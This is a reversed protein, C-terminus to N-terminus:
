ACVVIEQRWQEFCKNYFAVINANGTLARLSTGALSLDYHETYCRHQADRADSLKLQVRLGLPTVGGTEAVRAYFYCLLEDEAKAEQQMKFPISITYCVDRMGLVVGQTNHLSHQTDEAISSDFGRQQRLPNTQQLLIGFSQELPVVLTEYLWTHKMGPIHAPLSTTSFTLWQQLCSRMDRAHALAQELVARETVLKAGDLVYTKRQMLMDCSSSPAYDTMANCYGNMQIAVQTQNARFEITFRNVLRNATNGKKSAIINFCCNTLNGVRQVSFHENTVATNLEAVVKNCSSEFQTLVTQSVAQLIQSM